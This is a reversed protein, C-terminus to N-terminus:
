RNFVLASAALYLGSVILVKICQTFYDGDVMCGALMFAFGAVCLSAKYLKIM